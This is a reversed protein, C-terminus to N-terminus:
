QLKAYEAKAAKLVPIDPDADKWLTLFNQYAARAKEAEGALVHARGSELHALAGINQNVVIGRHDPIKQFEATASPGDHVALYAEGRVFIPYLNLLINQAPQGLEYPSAVRLLEIARAPNGSELAIQGRIVPLYTFQVVTNYPLRTAM